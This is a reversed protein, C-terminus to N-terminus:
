KGGFHDSVKSFSSNNSVNIFLAGNHAEAIDFVEDLFTTPSENLVIDNECVLLYKSQSNLFRGITSLHKDTIYQNLVFHKLHKKEFEKKSLVTLDKTLRLVVKLFVQIKTLNKLNLTSIESQFKTHYYTIQFLKLVSLKPPILDQWSSDSRECEYGLKSISSSLINLALSFDDALEFGPYSVSGLM